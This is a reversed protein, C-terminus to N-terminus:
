SSHPKDWVPKGSETPKTKPAEKGHPQIPARAVQKQQEAKAAAADPHHNKEPNTM